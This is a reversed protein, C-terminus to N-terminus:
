KRKSEAKSPTRRGLAAELVDQYHEAYVFTLKDRVQAPTELVDARNRAPVVITHVGARRAAVLKERIGGVPLVEGRLTM